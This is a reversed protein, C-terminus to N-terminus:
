RSSGGRRASIRQSPLRRRPAGTATAGPAAVARAALVTTAVKPMAVDSTAADPAAVGPATAARGDDDALVSIILSGPANEHQAIRHVSPWALPVRAITYIIRGSRAHIGQNM